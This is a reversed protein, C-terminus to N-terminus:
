VLRRRVAYGAALVIAMGAAVALTEAPGVSTLVPQAAAHAPKPAATAAYNFSPMEAPEAGAAAHAPTDATPADTTKLPLTLMVPESKESENGATDISAVAIIYRKLPMLGELYFSTITGAPVRHTYAGAQETYYIAYGAISESNTPMDWDLRALGQEIRSTLHVPQNTLDITPESPPAATAPDASSSAPVSCDGACLIFASRAVQGSIDTATIPLNYVTNPQLIDPIFFSELGYVRGKGEQQGALMENSPTGGIASLDINVSLIDALGDADSVFTYLSITDTFETILMPLIRNRNMDIQPATARTNAVSVAQQYIATQEAVDITIFGSVATDPVTILLVDNGASDKSTNILLAAIGGIKVVPVTQTLGTGTILIQDGAKLESKSISMIQPAIVAASGTQTSTGAVTFVQPAIIKIGNMALGVSGTVAGEPVVVRLTEKGELMVPEVTRSRVTTGRPASFEVLKDATNQILNEGVLFIVDGPAGEAPTLLSINPLVAIGAQEPAVAETVSSTLLSANEFGTISLSVMGVLLVLSGLGGLIGQLRPNLRPFSFLINPTQM